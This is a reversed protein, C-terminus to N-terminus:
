PQNRPVSLKGKNERLLCCLFAIGQHGNRMAAFRDLFYFIKQFVNRPDIDPLQPFHDPCKETGSNRFRDHRPPNM